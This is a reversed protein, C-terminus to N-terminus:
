DPKNPEDFKTKSVNGAFPSINKMAVNINNKTRTIGAEICMFGPQMVFVMAACVLVWLQDVQSMVSDENFRPEECTPQQLGLTRTESQLLLARPMWLQCRLPHAGGVSGIELTKFPTRAMNSRHAQQSASAM